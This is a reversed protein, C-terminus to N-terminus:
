RGAWKRCRAPGTPCRCSRCRCAATSTAMSWCTTASISRPRKWGCWCTTRAPARHPCTLRTSITWASPPFSSPVCPIAGHHFHPWPGAVTTQHYDVRITLRRNTVHTLREVERGGAQAFQARERCGRPPEIERARCQLHAARRRHQAPADRRQLLRDARPQEQAGGPAHRQGRAALQQQRLPLAHF